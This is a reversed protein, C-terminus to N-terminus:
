VHLFVDSFNSCAQNLQLLGLIFPCLAHHLLEGQFCTAQKAADFKEVMIVWAQGVGVPQASDEVGIESHTYATVTFQAHRAGFKM